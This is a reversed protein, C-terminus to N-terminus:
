EYVARQNKYGNIAPLSVFIATLEDLVLLVLLKSFNIHAFVIRMYRSTLFAPDKMLFIPDIMYKKSFFPVLGASFFPAMRCANLSYILLQWGVWGGGM